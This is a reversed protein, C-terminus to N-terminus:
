WIFRIVVGTGRFPYLPKDNFQSAQLSLIM